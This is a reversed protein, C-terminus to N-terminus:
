ARTVEGTSWARMKESTLDTARSQGIVISLRESGSKTQKRLMEFPKGAGDLKSCPPLRVAGSPTLLLVGAVDGDLLQQENVLAYHYDHCHTGSKGKGTTKLFLRAVLYGAEALPLVEDVLYAKEATDMSKWTTRLRERMQDPTFLDCSNAHFAHSKTTLPKKEGAVSAKIILAFRAPRDRSKDGEVKVRKGRPQNDWISCEVTGFDSPFPALFVKSPADAFYGGFRETFIPLLASDADIMTKLRDMLEGFGIQAPRAPQMITLDTHAPDAQPFARRRLAAFTADTDYHHDYNM